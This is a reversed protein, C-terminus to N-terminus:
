INNLALKVYVYVADKVFFCVTLIIYV